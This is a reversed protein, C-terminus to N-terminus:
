AADIAALVAAAIGEAGTSSSDFTQHAPIGAVLARFRAHRELHFDRDRSLGRGPDAVARAFTVSVPADVVVWHVARGPPLPDLLAAQEGASYVPRVAIVVDVGTRLWAAVAAGHVRHAASWLGSAAAGRGAVMAAVDDVDAVVATRGSAAVLDALASAVTNKGAAIPGTVVVLPLVRRSHCPTRRRGAPDAAM